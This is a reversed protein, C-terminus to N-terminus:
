GGAKRYLAKIEGKNKVSEYTLHMRKKKMMAQGLKASAAIEAIAAKLGGRKFEGLAAQTEYMGMGVLENFRGAQGAAKVFAGHFAAVKPLLPERHQQKSIQKLVETIRATQIDNPCRTGCTYCALCKWVLLNDIAGQEDGLLLMRILRDPTVGSEKGVPCGAACRRCQYCALLNQGSRRAVEEALTAGARVKLAAPSM